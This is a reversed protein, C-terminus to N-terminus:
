KREGGLRVCWVYALILQPWFMMVNSTATGPGTWGAALWFEKNMLAGALLAAVSFVMGARRWETSGYLATLVGAALGFGVLLQGWEVLLGFLTANPVVIAKLYSVYWGYPNESMFYGLTQPMGAVFDGTVKEWGAHFWVYALVLQVGLVAVFYLNAESLRQTPKAVGLREYLPCSGSMAEFLFYLGALIFFLKALPNAFAIVGLLVLLGGFVVRALREFGGLNTKM